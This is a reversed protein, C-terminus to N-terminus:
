TLRIIEAIHLLIYITQRSYNMMLHCESEQQKEYAKPLWKQINTGRNQHSPHTSLIQPTAELDSREMRNWFDMAAEPRYCGEAMMMLGIYDAEAEHKRSSPWKLFINVISMSAGLSLDFSALALVGLWVLPSLSLSEAIHHAVVHGIEHALVAAIGDEDRCAPLIGTYVFVKGGPIVFANEEPSDIVHIEWDMGPLGAKTAYPILRQLVKRVQQVRPDDDPLFNGKYEEKIENMTMEGIYEELWPSIINFRRRGSIPVEELNYVYFGVGGLTIIGVDRFFTPKAAWQMFFEGFAGSAAGPSDTFRKYQPRRGQGYARSAIRPINAIPIRRVNQISSLIRIRSLRPLM